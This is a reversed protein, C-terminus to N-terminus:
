HLKAKALQRRTWGSCCCWHPWRRSRRRSSWPLLLHQGFAPAIGREYGVTNLGVVARAQRCADDAQDVFPLWAFGIIPARQPSPGPAGATRQIIELSVFGHVGLHDPQFAM